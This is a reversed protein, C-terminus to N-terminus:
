KIFSKPDTTRKLDDPILAIDDDHKSSINHLWRHMTIERQATRMSSEVFATAFRIVVNKTATLIRVVANDGPFSSHVTM